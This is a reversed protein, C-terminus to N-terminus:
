CNKEQKRAKSWSLWLWAYMMLSMFILAPIRYPPKSILKIQPFTVTLWYMLVILVCGILLNRVAKHTIKESSSNPNVVVALIGAIFLGSSVSAYKFEIALMVIAAAWMCAALFIRSTTPM